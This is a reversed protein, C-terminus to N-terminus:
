KSEKKPYFDALSGKKEKVPLNRNPLEFKADPFEERFEKASTAVQGEWKNAATEYTELIKFLQAKLADPKQATDLSGLTSQLMKLELVAVQGLAGGTPSEDRMKQLRDFGINAVIQDIAARLKVAESGPIVALVSGMGATFPNVLSIAKKIENAVQQNNPLKGIAANIENKKEGLAKKYGPSGQIWTYKNEAADYQMDGKKANVANIFDQAKEKDAATANPDAITRLADAEDQATTTDKKELLKNVAIQYDDVDQKLLPNLPDLKLREQAKALAGKAKELNTLGTVSDARRAKELDAKNKNYKQAEQYGIITAESAENQFGADSLQQALAPFFTNPDKLDEEGLTDRLKKQIGQMTVAKTLEPDETPFVKNLGQALAVGLVGGVNGKAGFAGYLGQYKQEDKLQVQEPSLGFLTNVIEAM